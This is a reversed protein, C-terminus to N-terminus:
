QFVLGGYITLTYPCPIKLTDGEEINVFASFGDEASVYDHIKSARADAADNVSRLTIYGDQDDDGVNTLIYSGVPIDRGGVYTGAQLTATKQIHRSVVEAQVQELLSLLESDSCASLDFAEALACLPIILLCVAALVILLKKM